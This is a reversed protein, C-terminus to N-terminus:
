RDRSDVLFLIRDDNGRSAAERRHDEVITSLQALSGRGFTVRGVNRAELSFM